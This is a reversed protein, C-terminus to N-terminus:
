KKISHYIKAVVNMLWKPVKKPFYFRHYHTFYGKKLDDWQFLREEAFFRAIDILHVKNDKTVLLNHLHVDSPNLGKNKAAVLAENVQNVHDETLRLGEILCQSFTKGEIYDMVIYNKGSMYVTPYYPIGEVKKYNRAEDQAIHEFPPYFVKIARGEDKIKFVFASRGKGILELQNPVNILDTNRGKREFVIETVFESYYDEKLEVSM